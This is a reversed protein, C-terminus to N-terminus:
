YYDDLYKSPSISINSYNVASGRDETMHRDFMSFLRYEGNVAIYDLLFERGTIYDEIIANGTASYSVAEAFREDLEIRNYCVGAGRSGSSDLPKVFVPYQISDYIDESINGGVM